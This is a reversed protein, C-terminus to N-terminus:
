QRAREKEKLATPRLTGRIAASTASQRSKVRAKPKEMPTHAFDQRIDMSAVRTVNGRSDEQDAKVKERIPVKVREKSDKGRSDKTLPM